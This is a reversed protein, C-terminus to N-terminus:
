FAQGLSIYVGIRSDGPQPNLPTGVDVRIPGFNTLYRVGLGAGFQLGDFGPASTRYVNGADVFPVISFAGFAHIRAEAAFEVLSAGGIPSNDPARPGIRQYGYGRVSGGGGAYYRRSPAIEDRSAGIISAVRVRGALVVKDNVPLYGSADIQARLYPLVGGNFSVEPSLRTSVRFGREPNLLDNSRDYTVLGFVSGILFRRRVRADVSPDYALEDTGLLQTGAAWSWLKQYILTTTREVRASIDVTRADFADTNTNSALAQLTLVRDRRLWNNRRFTVSGLQELTGAVGRVILAGEPPFLNRHEWAAEVRLGQGSAYGIQGSITRPPAPSLTVDLNVHNGDNAPVPQIEVASVLGTAILARRLDETDSFRYWDGPVFRAIQQIHHSGLMGGDDARIKGFRLRSGPEVPQDLVGSHLDHDITVTESRLAAFPYGTEIMTTKLNRQAAILWDAVIPDGVALVHNGPAAFSAALRAAEDAMLADLGTLHIASYTYRPGPQANFTIRLGEGSRAIASTLTADYYGENRLMQDLLRTDDIIRRNIQARNATEGENQRLESLGSFREDFSGNGVADFGELAVSYRQAGIDPADGGDDGAIPTDSAATEVPPTGAGEVPAPAEGGTALEAPDPPPLDALPPLPQSLDPWALTTGAAAGPDLPPLEPVPAGPDLGAASDDPIPALPPLHSQDPDDAATGATQAM